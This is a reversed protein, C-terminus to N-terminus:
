SAPGPTRSARGDGEGENVLGKQVAHVALQIRNTLHLKELINRLHIKVTNEAIGLGAAIEKNTLGRAVLRLVESERPTLAEPPPQTQDPGAEDRRRLEDLIRAAIPGSLRPKGQHVEEIVEYLEEPEADKLLYGDAGCKIAAFLDRDDDSVTLMVVHVRPTHRKIVRTAEIGSVTPLGIDMLIVDPMTQSALAIAESGDGAEGVVVFGPRRNFLAALGKRFLVHDDVLLVKVPQAPSVAEAAGTPAPIGAREASDM